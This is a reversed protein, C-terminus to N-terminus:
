AGLVRELFNIKNKIVEKFNELRYVLSGYAQLRIEELSKCYLTEQIANYERELNSKKLIYNKALQSDVEMITEISRQVRDIEEKLQEVKAQREEIPFVENLKEYKKFVKYDNEIGTYPYGCLISHILKSVEKEKAGVIDEVSIDTISIGKIDEEVVAVLEKLERLVITSMIENQKAVQPLATNTVRFIDKIFIDIARYKQELNKGRLVTAVTLQETKLKKSM